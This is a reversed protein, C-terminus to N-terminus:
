KKRHSPQVYGLAKGSNQAEQTVTAHADLEAMAARTTQNLAADRRLRYAKQQCSRSCYLAGDHQRGGANRHQNAHRGPEFRKSCKFWACEKWTDM